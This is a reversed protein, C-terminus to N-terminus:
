RRAQPGGDLAARGDLRGRRPPDGDRLLTVVPGAVAGSPDRADVFLTFARGGAVGTLGAWGDALQLLGPVAADLVARGGRETVRVRGTAAGTGTQAVDIDLRLAPAESAQTAAVQAPAETRAGAARPEPAAAALTGQVRLARRGGPMPRSPERWARVLARGARVGTLRGERLAFQGAVLVHRVGTSLRAPDEYTAHDTITAADFVAIDAVMGPRLAGRDALGITAAPLLTMKRVAEALTLAGTERVYRGLVRPYTGYSRPHTRTETTAGCDCAVSSAPHQLLQVLDSEVGFQLIASPTGEELLQVIAEGTRVGRDRMEDTLQRRTAPLYVGEAGGFRAALAAEAEEIIRARQAPDGFRALMAERGGDQAWGPIILAGLGTQGALYPYVDAAAYQGPAESRGLLALMKAASGQERGQVKAHTAVPVLGAERGIAVTEAVGATSSFGTEPSLRDHNTFLTRYPALTRVVAIVEGATAFYAPKYDLGASIGWAGADLNRAHRQQMRTIDDPAPRRESLGVVEAWISNFGSFAGVHLALGAAELERLQAAIDVPGGGDPNLIETTVGQTLMNEATPLAAPQVHSHINIFGPAVTLGTVDVVEAATAAALDGVAVIHGNAVGVDGRVPPAGTGDVVMGGRLIVDLTGAAREARQAAVGTGAALVVSM